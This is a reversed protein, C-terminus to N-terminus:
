KVKEIAINDIVYNRSSSANEGFHLYLTPRETNLADANLVPRWGSLVSGPMMVISYQQTQKDVTIIVTHNETESFSGISEYQPANSTRLLVQGADLRLAALSKFHSDGLWVDLASGSGDLNPRAVWIARFKQNAPLATQKSLFGVYRSNVPMNVNSYRLSKSALAGSNVVRVQNSANSPDALYIEDGAPSGPLSKNPASGVSDADFKASLLTGSACGSLVFM